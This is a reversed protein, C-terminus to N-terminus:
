RRRIVKIPMAKSNKYDVRERVRDVTQMRELVTATESEAKDKGFFNDSEAMRDVEAVNEPIRTVPDTKIRRRPDPMTANPDAAEIIRKEDLSAEIPFRAQEKYQDGYLEMHRGVGSLGSSETGILDSEDPVWDEVMAPDLWDIQTEIGKSQSFTGDGTARHIKVPAGHVIQTEVKGEDRATIFFPGGSDDVTHAM